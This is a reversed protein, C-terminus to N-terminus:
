RRKEKIYPMRSVYGCRGCTRIIRGRTVRVRSSVGPVSPINCEKCYFFGEPMRTRTKQCIRLALSVYRRARDDEGEELAKVSLATLVSVREAAISAVKDNSIRRKSM